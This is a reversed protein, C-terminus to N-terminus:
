GGHRIRLSRLSGEFWEPGAGYGGFVSMGNYLGPGPCPIPKSSKGDVRFRAASQDYRIEVKHWKGIALSLGSDLQHYHLYQDCYTGSLKGDNLRVLLSGPYYSRCNFLVQPKNSTPKIEFSLTFGARRPLTDSPLAVFTGIGDFKLCPKGDEEVWDPATKRSNEPYNWTGLFFPTSGTGRGRGTVTDCYGGLIGWFPQGASTSLIVGRKPSFEYSVDPIRARDVQVAVAKKATDSYVYVTGTKGESAEPLIVPRSYYVKGSCTIARMHFVSTNMEPRVPASFSASNRNLRHPFIPQKCYRIISFTLGGEHTESYSGNDVIQKVPVRFKIQNTDVVIVAKDADAKRIALYSCKNWLNADQAIHLTKGQVREGAAAGSNLEKGLWRCGGDVVAVSGILPTSRMARREIAFLLTDNRTRLFEGNPDVSYVVDDDELVELSALKEACAFSGAAKREAPDGAVSLSFAAKTAQCVDRLPQKVWKLDWNSTARLHIYHLGEEFVREQGRYSVEVSPILVENGTLTETPVVVTRDALEHADLTKPPCRKVTHGELDKLVVTATYTEPRDSDPVNLLEIELREGLALLKRYSVILNPISVDDGPNPATPEGKLRRMYCRLIRQSSFSNFVTPRIFTNENEEDWEPMNIIDPRAALAAEFSHRLTKTGDEDTYCGTEPNFYGIAASLGFYKAKYAPEALVSRCIPIIFDRYQKEHFKRDRTKIHGTEAFYLGDCVDLYSRLFTKVGQIDSEPIPKGLDIKTAWESVALKTLDPLFVFTDGHKARLDALITKWEAPTKSDAIYSTLLVKGGIRVVSKTALAETLHQSYLKPDETGIEPLLGFGEHYARDSFEFISTNKGASAFHMGGNGPFFAFGDLEYSSRAMEVMHTFSAFNIHQYPEKEGRLSQDFLLPRDIWQRTYNGYLPYTFQARSFVLTRGAVPTREGLTSAGTEAVSWQSGGVLVLVISLIIARSPRELTIM